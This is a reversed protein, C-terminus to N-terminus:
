GNIAEMADRTTKGLYVGDLWWGSRTEGTRTERKSYEAGRDRLDVLRAAEAPSKAAAIMANINDINIQAITM